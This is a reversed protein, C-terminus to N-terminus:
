THVRVQQWRRAAATRVLLVLENTTSKTHQHAGFMLRDGVVLLTSLELGTRSAGSAACYATRGWRDSGFAKNALDRSTALWSNSVVITM